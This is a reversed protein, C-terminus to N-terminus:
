DICRDHGQLTLSGGLAAKEGRPKPSQKVPNRRPDKWIPCLPYLRDDFLLLALALRNRQKRLDFAADLRLLRRPQFAPILNLIQFGIHHVKDHFV